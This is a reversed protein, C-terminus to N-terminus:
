TESKADAESEGEEPHRPERIDEAQTSSGTNGFPDSTGARQHKPTKRVPSRHKPTKRVLRVESQEENRHKGFNRSRGSNRGNSTGAKGSMESNETADVKENADVLRRTPM